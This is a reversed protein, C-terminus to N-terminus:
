ADREKGLPTFQYLGRTGTHVYKAYGETGVEYIPGSHNWGMPQVTGAKWVTGAPTPLDELFEAYPETYGDEECRGKKVIRARVKAHELM